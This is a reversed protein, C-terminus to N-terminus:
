AREVTVEGGTTVHISPRRGTLLAMGIPPPGEADYVNINMEREGATLIDKEYRRKLRLERITEPPLVLYETLGTDITLILDRTVGIGIIRLPIEAHFGDDHRVQERIM